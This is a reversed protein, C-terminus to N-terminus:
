HHGCRRIRQVLSGLSKDEPESRGFLWQALLPDQTSLLAEFQVIEPDKMNDVNRDFYRMLMIDLEVMGRRCRWRLKSRSVTDM